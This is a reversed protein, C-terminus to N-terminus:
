SCPATEKRPNLLHLLAGVTTLALMTLLLLHTPLLTEGPRM